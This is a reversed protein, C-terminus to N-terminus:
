EECVDEEKEKKSYNVILIMAKIWIAVALCIMAIMVIVFNAQSIKGEQFSTKFYDFVFSFIGMSLAGLLCINIVAMANKKMRISKELGVKEERIKILILLFFNMVMVGLFTFIFFDFFREKTMLNMVNEEKKM